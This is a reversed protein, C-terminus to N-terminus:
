SNCCACGSSAQGLAKLRPDYIIVVTNKQLGAFWSQFKAQQDGPASIGAFVHDAINRNIIMDEKLRKRFATMSGYRETVMQELEPQGKRLEDMRADVEGDQIIVRNQEAAALLLERQLLDQWVDKWVKDEQETALAKGSRQRVLQEFDSRALLRDGIRALYQQGLQSQEQQMAAYEQPSLELSLSAPYGALSIAEAIARSDIAEPDYTVRGRSSTLNIEVSDIGNLKTLANEINHVCSSCTMKEIQYEALAANTLNIGGPYFLWAVLILAILALAASVCPKPRKIMLRRVLKILETAPIFCFASM